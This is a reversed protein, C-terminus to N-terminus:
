LQLRQRSSPMAAVVESLLATGLSERQRTHAGLGDLAWYSLSSAAIVGDARCELPPQRVWKRPRSPEGVEPDEGIANSRSRWGHPVRHARRQPHGIGATCGGEPPIGRSRPRGRSGGWAMQMGDMTPVSASVMEEALQRGKSM